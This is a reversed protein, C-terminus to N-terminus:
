VEELTFSVGSWYTIGGRVTKEAAEPGSVHFSRTMEAGTRDTYTVAAPSAALAASIERLTVDRLETLTVSIGRKKVQTRYATGDLAVVERSQRLIDYQRIGEAQAWRALECGNVTLRAQM